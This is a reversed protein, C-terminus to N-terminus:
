VHRDYRAKFLFTLVFLYPMANSTSVCVTNFACLPCRTLACMGYVCPPFVFPVCLILVHIFMSGPLCKKWKFSVPSAHLTHFTDPKTKNLASIASPILSRSFIAKNCRISSFTRRSPLLQFHCNLPHTADQSTTHTVHTCYCKQKPWASKSHATWKKQPLTTM